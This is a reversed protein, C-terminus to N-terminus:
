NGGSRGEGSGRVDSRRAAAKEIESNAEGGIFIATSTIYLWLMLTAVANLGGYITQSASHEEYVRFLQTSVIWLAVAIVAGPISWKWQRDKLNPGFRYLLALSLILLMVIVTWKVILWLFEFHGTMGLHQGVINGARNGYVLAALAMLYTIGLSITLGLMVFLIRWWRRKEEVEYARNLDSMVAWTGHLSGWVSYLSALVAGSGFTVKANLEATTRALLTSAGPPLVETFSKLLAERGESGSTAKSLFLLLLLLIPFLAFFAYFALRASQGLVKDQWSKLATRKVVDWYSIGRFDLLQIM